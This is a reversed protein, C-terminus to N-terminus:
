LPTVSVKIVQIQSNGQQPDWTIFGIGGRPMANGNITASVTQNDVECQINSGKVDMSVPFDIALM